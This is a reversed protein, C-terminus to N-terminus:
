KPLINGDPFIRFTQSSGRIGYDWHPGIPPGHNLDPHLWEGTKMNVFNGKGSAPTGSGRWEFGPNNCRAPDNGPYKISPTNTTNSSVPSTTTKPAYSMGGKIGGTIAGTIAGSLAGNAMGNLTAEGAGDWSGTSIRHSIAGGAAGTAAGVAFGIAAGKAAGVAVAAIATGAGVTAVTVAAVTAVVAVIVVAAVVKKAWSPWDGTSDSMNVPSNMCYAFVNYGQVSGGVGSVQNDANLFRGIQPNYYRSQLYYFGTETDYYYGRYRIPNIKGISTDSTIEAGNANLISITNGWSDYVYRAKLEAQSNYIAEVDGRNNCVVYYYSTAGSANTYEILSLNGFSNYGFRLETDGRKEYILKDGLYQYYSEVGNVKKYSRLGDADYRYSANVGNGNLTKLQRGNWTLSYGLYSTPNGITDYTISQGDYSTLLDTWSSDNYNYLITNTPALGNLSSTTYNYFKKKTINGGNDYEYTITKNLYKNNERTLQSLADYEYTIKLSYNTGTTNEGNRIGEKVTILNGLNDYDYYYATNNIVEQRLKTTRYVESDGENRKSLCYTYNINIPTETNLSITRLRNLGDYSYSQERASIMNYVSPLNDEAYDYRQTVSKGNIKYVVKSINNNSDYKQEASLIRTDNSSDSTSDYVNQRILRGTTDYTYYYNLNNVFDKHLVPKSSSDYKWSYKTNGNRAVSTVDGYANYTYSISDGNGYTSSVLKGNRSNYTNTNLTHNGAKTTKVNGFGDYTFSYTMGNHSITKLRNNEYTYNNTIGNSSVSTLADNNSNYTYSTRTNNQNLTYNLNGKQKDYSYYTRRGDQDYVSSLYAGANVGLDSDASTYYANTSLIASGSSNKIDLTKAEGYSNYTYDYKVNNQSKARTLNHNDDYTYTYNYGKPDTSKTLDSNSYEMTSKQEANASVSVLNGDSDYTYSQSTDKILQIGDFYASNAQNYYRLYVSIKVPTKSASTGDSLTFAQATYQWGSVSTNFEAPTKWITSDDSYTVKVSIKFERNDNTIPVANARAWGSVIYTDRESGSVIVDQFLAKKTGSNGAIEFSTAGFKYYSTSVVDSSTLNSSAWKTPMNNSTNEMSANEIMNYANAVSSEELQIGDFYAKGTANRIALNARTYTADAPIKLTASIRRWGNNIATDTTGVLYESSESITNASNSCSAYLSIFVGYNSYNSNKKTIGSTKVYASLTYTKGPKLTSTDFDQKIRARGDGTVDTCNIEFAAKGYYKQSTSSTFTAVVDDVCYTKAWNATTEANSNNILNTINRGFSASRSVKNITKINSASSNLESSTYNYVEAGLNTSSTKSQKCITKGFNDFQYTTYVDDDTGYVDDVGSTQIVTTNYQSRDFGISQGTVTNAKEVVKQVRKGKKLTTYSFNLSYGTSDEAKELVM